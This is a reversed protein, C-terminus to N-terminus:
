LLVKIVGALSLLGISYAEIAAGVYTKYMTISMIDWQKPIEVNLKDTSECKQLFKSLTESVDRVNHVLSARIPFSKLPSSNLNFGAREMLLESMLVDGQGNDIFLVFNVEPYLQMYQMLAEAKKEAVPYWIATGKRMKRNRFIRAYLAKWLVYLGSKLDGSLIVPESRLLGKRKMPGVLNKYSYIESMGKYSKPRATLFVLSSSQFFPAYEKSVMSTCHQSCHAHIEQFLKDVGPYIAKRPLRKDVGAPWRGGSCILTDDVDSVVKTAKEEYKERIQMGESHIHRLVESQCSGRALDYFVLKHMSHWDGRSDMIAKLISLQSGKTSLLINRTWYEKSKSNPIGVRQLGDLLLAKCSLSIDPLRSGFSRGEPTGLLMDFTHKSACFAFEGCNISCLLYNLETTTANHVIDHMEERIRKYYHNWFLIRFLLATLGARIKVKSVQKILENLRFSTGRLSGQDSSGNMAQLSLFHEAKDRRLRQMTDSFIQLSAIQRVYSELLEAVQTSVLVTVVSALMTFESLYAIRAGFYIGFLAWFVKEYETKHFAKLETTFYGIILLGALWDSSPVLECLTPLVELLSSLPSENSEKQEQRWWGWGWGDRWAAVQKLLTTASM